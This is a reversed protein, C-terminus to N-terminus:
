GLIASDQGKVIDFSDLGKRGVKTIGLNSGDDTADIRLQPSLDPGQEHDERVIQITGPRLGRSRAM